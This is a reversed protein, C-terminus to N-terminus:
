QKEEQHGNCQKDDVRNIPICASFDIFYPLIDNWFSLEKEKSQGVNFPLSCSDNFMPFLKCLAVYENKKWNYTKLMNLFDQKEVEKFSEQEKDYKFSVEVLLRKKEKEIQNPYKNAWATLVVTRDRVICNELASTEDPGLQNQVIFDIIARFLM